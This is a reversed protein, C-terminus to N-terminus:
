LTKFYHIKTKFMRHIMYVDLSHYYLSIIRLLGATQVQKVTDKEM